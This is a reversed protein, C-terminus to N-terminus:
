GRLRVGIYVTGYKEIADKYISDLEPNTLDYYESYSNDKNSLHIKRPSGWRSFFEEANKPKGGYFARGDKIRSGSPYRTGNYDHDDITPEIYKAAYGKEVEYKRFERKMELQHEVYKKQFDKLSKETFFLHGIPHFVHWNWVRRNYEDFSRSDSYEALLLIRGNSFKVLNKNRYSDYSM